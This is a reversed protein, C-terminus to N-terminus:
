GYWVFLYIFVCHTMDLTSALVLLCCAFLIMPRINSGRARIVDDYLTVNRIM